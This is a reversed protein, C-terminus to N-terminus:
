CEPELNTSVDDRNQARSHMAIQRVVHFMVSICARPKTPGGGDDVWLLRGELCERMYGVIM